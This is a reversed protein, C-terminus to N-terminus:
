IHYDLCTRRGMKAELIFKIFCICRCHCSPDYRILEDHRNLITRSPIVSHCTGSCHELLKSFASWGSDNHRWHYWRQDSSRQIVHLNACGAWEVVCFDSSRCGVPSSGMDQGARQHELMQAKRSPLHSGTYICNLPGLEIWRKSLDVIFIAPVSGITDPLSYDEAGSFLRCVEFILPKGKGPNEMLLYM